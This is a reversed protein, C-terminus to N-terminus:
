ALTSHRLASCANTSFRAMTYACHAPVWYCGNWVNDRANFFTTLLRLYRYTFALSPNIQTAEKTQRRPLEGSSSPLGFPFTHLTCRVRHLHCTGHRQKAMCTRTSSTAAQTSSHPQASWYKAQRATPNPLQFNTYSPQSTFFLAQIIAHVYVPGDYGGAYTLIPPHRLFFSSSYVNWYLTIPQTSKFCM